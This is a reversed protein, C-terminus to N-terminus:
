SARAAAKIARSLEPNNDDRDRARVSFAMKLAKRLLKADPLSKSPNLLPVTISMLSEALSKRYKPSSDPWKMEAYERAFDFWPMQNQERVLSVPLGSAKDFAEGNRAASLLRARFSDAQASVKFSKRFDKGETEWRVRYSTVKGQANKRSEIKWIRVSYTTDM